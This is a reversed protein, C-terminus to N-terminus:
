SVNDIFDNSEFNLKGVSSIGLEEFGGPHLFTVKDDEVVLVRDGWQNVSRVINESKKINSIVEFNSLNLTMFRYYSPLIDEELLEYQLSTSVVAGLDGSDMYIPVFASYGSGGNVLSVFVDILSEGNLTVTVDFILGTGSGDTTTPVNPYFGVQPSTIKQSIGSSFTFSQTIISSGSGFLQLSIMKEGVVINNVGHNTGELHPTLDVFDSLGSQSLLYIGTLADDVTQSIVQYQSSLGTKSGNTVTNWIDGVGFEVNQLGSGKTWIWSNSLNDGDMVVFTGRRNVVLNDGGWNANASTSFTSVIGSHDLIQWIVYPTEASIGFGAFTVEDIKGGIIGSTEALSIGSSATVFGSDTLLGYYITSSHTAFVIIPNQGITYTSVDQIGGGASVILDQFYVKGLDELSHTLFENSGSPLWALNSVTGFLGNGQSSQFYNGEVSVLTLTGGFSPLPESMSKRSYYLRLSQFVFDVAVPTSFTYSIFQGNWIVLEYNNSDDNLLIYTSNDGYNSGQYTTWGGGSIDYSALSEGTESIVNIWDTLKLGVIYDNWYSIFIGNGGNLLSDVNVLEGSPLGLKWVKESNDVFVFTGGASINRSDYADLILSISASGLEFIVPALGDLWNVIYTTGSLSGSITLNTGSNIINLNSDLDVVSLLVGNFDIFYIKVLSDIVNEFLVAFGGEHINNTIGFGLQWVSDRGNVLETDIEESLLGTTHNFVRIRFTDNVSDVWVVINSQGSTLVEEVQRRKLGSGGGGGAGAASSSSVAVAEFMMKDRLVWAQQRIRGDDIGPNGRKLNEYIKRLQSM